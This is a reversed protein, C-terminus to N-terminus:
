SLKKVYCSIKSRSTILHPKILRELNLFPISQSVPILQSLSLLASSLLTSYLNFRSIDLAEFRALMSLLCFKILILFDILNNSFSFLSRSKCYIIFRKLKYRILIINFINFLFSATNVNLILILFYRRVSYATHFSEFVNFKRCEM